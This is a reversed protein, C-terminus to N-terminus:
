RRRRASSRLRRPRRTPRTSRRGSRARARGREGPHRAAVLNGALSRTFAHIGGKTMSYDLLEKAATRHRHGLRHQHHASGPKMHPVAAQAMHFYGYLNTKLTATSISTPQPGRLREVHVQFAANNVLVDLGGLEKVTRAVAERCFARDAVDGRDPPLAPRRGRRRAQDGRRGRGRRSLRHRRRRGRPRVARGRRPRHRLRRRHDARGQGDLKGSGKYYPAEYMPAPDLERKAPRAQAPAAEPLPPAPYARAGAQMPKEVELPPRRRDAEARRSQLKRYQAATSKAKRPAPRTRAMFARRSSNCTQVTSRCRPPPQGLESGEDGNASCASPRTTEIQQTFRERLADDTRRPDRDNAVACADDPLVVRFRSRGRGDGHGHRLCRDRRRHRDADRHRPPASGPGSARIRLRRTSPRTSCGRRRCWSACRSSWSSCARTSTIATMSRWREYYDRWAGSADDPENPPIFRTLVTRDPHRRAIELVNPLVKPLWPVFWDTPEAFLCQM